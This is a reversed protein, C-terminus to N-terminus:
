RQRSMFQRSCTEVGAAAALKPRTSDAAAKVAEDLVRQATASRGAKSEPSDAAAQCSILALGSVADPYERAFALAVYGGMSHGAIIAKRIKFHNLLGEIDSAFEIISDDAEMVDSQGFGRLDPIILDFDNELLPAVEDWISHDLPYGHILVLPVGKGRREYAIEIGAVNTKEM